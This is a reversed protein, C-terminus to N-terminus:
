SKEYNQTILFSPHDTFTLNVTPRPHLVFSGPHPIATHSCVTHVQLLDAQFFKLSQRVGKKEYPPEIFFLSRCRPSAISDESAYNLKQIGQECLRSQFGQIEM